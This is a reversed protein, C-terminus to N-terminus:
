VGVGVGHQEFYKKRPHERFVQFTKQRKEKLITKQKTKKSRRSLADRFRLPLDLCMLQFLHIQDKREQEREVNSQIHIPPHAKSLWNPLFVFYTRERCHEKLHPINTLDLALTNRM